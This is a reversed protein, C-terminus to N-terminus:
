PSPQNGNPAAADNKQEPPEAGDFLNRLFGPTLISLPNVSVDPDGSSGKISYRAAFIGEGGGTLVDGIIPVNGLVTNLTYSPVVIGKLDLAQGPFRITGEATLGMAAGHTKADKLTIVDDELAFPAHLRSFTIGKGQLTNLAGTLSALTLLRALVPADGIRHESIRLLGELPRSPIADNFRGSLDLVGGEMNDYINLARLFAGADEAKAEVQRLSSGARAIRFGFPADKARGAIHASECIAPTCQIMGKLDALSRGEGLVLEKLDLKVDLAPFREFSFDRSDGGELWGSVDLREGRADLRHGGEIPEYHLALTNGAIAFQELTLSKLEGSPELQASGRAKADAAEFDFAPLRVAEGEREVSLALTAPAGAPKSWRMEKWAVAIDKMDVTGKAHQRDGGSKLEGQVQATGTLIEPAPAGFRELEALPVRASFTVFTDFSEATEFLYKVDARAPIGSISGSGEFHLAANDLRLVGNAGSIDFRKMFGPQGAERLEARIDYNVGMDARPRGAADRPVFYSFGLKATGAVTGTATEPNLGLREAHDAPPRSLFSAVDAAPGEASFAAEIRPNDLNLDEILVSGQSVRTATLARGSSAQAELRRGGISATGVLDRVPPHDPLYRLQAREFAIRADIAEDPLAPLAIQGPLINMVISAHPIVGGTINEVVWTRSIPALNVPWFTRVHAVPVQQTAAVLQIGIGESARILGGRGQISYAGFDIGLRDLWLERSGVARGEARVSKLAIEGDLEPSRVTGEGAQLLYRASLLRGQRDLRFDTWGGAQMRLAPLVREDMFLSALGPLWVTQARIRGTMPGKRPNMSLEAQVQGIRTEDDRPVLQASAVLSVASWKQTFAAHVRRARLFVGERLNGVSVDADTIEVRKLRRIAKLAEGELLEGLSMQAAGGPPVEEGSAAPFGFSIRGNEDQYLSVVPRRIHVAVPVVKGVLLSLLDLDLSIDPFSAFREGSRAHVDVQKLRLDIPHRWGDWMLLGQGIKVTYPADNGGLAAEIAPLVQEITRPKTAVWILVANFFVLALVLLGFAAGLVFRWAARGPRRLPRPSHTNHSTGQVAM